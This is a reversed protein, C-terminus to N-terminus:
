KVHTFVTIVCAAWHSRPGHLTPDWGNPNSEEPDGTLGHEM